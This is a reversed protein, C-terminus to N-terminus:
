QQPMAGPMVLRGDGSRVLLLYRASKLSEGRFIGEDQVFLYSGQYAGVINRQNGGLGLFKSRMAELAAACTEINTVNEQLRNYKPSGDKN